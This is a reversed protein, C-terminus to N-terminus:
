KVDPYDWDKAILAEQLQQNKVLKEVEVVVNANPNALIKLLHKTIQDNLYLYQTDVIYKDNRELMRQSLIMNLHIILDYALNKDNELHYLIRSLTGSVDGAHFTTAVTHGTRAAEVTAGIVDKDRMEGVLIMNPHERLAGKIGLEYSLFDKRLEKQMIRVHKTSDFLNEIPDELTIIVKNDLCGNPQTFTNICAALTTSKGSGTPGTLITIGTRKSLAQELAGMCQPNFNINDFTRKEPRIMRFTAEFREQSFGYNARYRYYNEAYKNLNPSDDPIRIKLSSDMIKERVYMANFEKPLHGSDIFIHWDDESTAICPLQTITGFRSIFPPENVKIYLDSCDAETAFVLLEEISLHKGDLADLFELTNVTDLENPNKIKIQM